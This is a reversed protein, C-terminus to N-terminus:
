KSQSVNETATESPCRTFFGLPVFRVEEQHRQMWNQLADLTTSYPHGIAIAYGRRQALSLTEDLREKILSPNIEHDLFVDRSLNRIGTDSATKAAVSRATTRSDLFYINHPKLAQMLNQMTLPDATAASGMHNNVGQAMPLNQFAKSLKKEIEARSEGVKIASPGADARGLPQMPMHLIIEHGKEQALRAYVAANQGDPLFAFTVSEPLNLANKTQRESGGMDDIVIAILAARRTLPALSHSLVPFCLDRSEEIKYPLIPPNLLNDVNEQCAVLGMVLWLCAVFFLVKRFPVAKSRM